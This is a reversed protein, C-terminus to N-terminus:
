RTILDLFYDFASKVCEIRAPTAGATKLNTHMQAWMIEGTESINKRLLMESEKKAEAECLPCLKNESAAERSSGFIESCSLCPITRIAM